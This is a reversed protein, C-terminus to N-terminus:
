DRFCHRHPGVSARIRNRVACPVGVVVEYVVERVRAVEIVEGANRVLVTDEREAGVIDRKGICLTRVAAIVACPM